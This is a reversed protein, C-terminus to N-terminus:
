APQRAPAVPCGADIVIDHAQHTVRAINSYLRPFAAEYDLRFKVNEGSSEEQEVAIVVQKDESM